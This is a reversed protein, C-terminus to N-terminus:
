LGALEDGGGVDREIFGAVDVDRLIAVVVADLDEVGSREFDDAHDATEALAVDLKGPRLGHHDIALSKVDGVGAIVSDGDEVNVAGEQSVDARDAGGESLESEGIAQIFIGM